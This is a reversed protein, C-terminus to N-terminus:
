DQGESTTNTSEHNLIALIAKADSAQDPPVHVMASFGHRNSIGRGFSGLPLLSFAEEGQVLYTINASKLVSKVVLLLAVDTTEFILIWANHHLSSESAM